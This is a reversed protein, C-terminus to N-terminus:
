FVGIAKASAATIALQYLIQTVDTALKLGSFTIIKQPVVITDGLVVKEGRHLVGVSNRTVSGNPHVVLVDSGSGRKNIGGSLSVYDRVRENKRYLHATPHYVEGVVLVSDPRRPIHLRDGGVLRLSAEQVAVNGAADQKLTLTMRGTAKTKRIMQLLERGAGLAQGRDGSGFTAPQTAVRVLDQEFTQALRDIEDQERQRVEERQFVAGPLFADETLGGARAIVSGVSEGDEIVYTGPFRVEGSLTITEGQWDPMTRINVRDDPQLVVNDLETGNRAESLDVLLHETQRGEGHPVLAFRTIEVAYPYARENVDGAATLLDTLHMGETLPYRGPFHVEGQVEVTRDPLRGAVADRELREVEPVLTAARDEDEGFAYVVDGDVLALDSSGDPHAVADGLSAQLYTRRGDADRAV